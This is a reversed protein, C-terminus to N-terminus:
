FKVTLGFSVTRQTGYKNLTQGNTGLSNGLSVLRPDMGKRKSWLALNNAYIGLSLGSVGEPLFNKNFDYSISADEISIYDSKILFLDSASMNNDRQRDVAPLLADVNTSTWTKYIDKHFNKVDGLGSQLLGAYVGDYMYGGFQYGFNVALNVGKYGFKTGFGGYFKPNANKDLVYLTADQYVSTTKQGIVNGNADKEDVYWLANGNTKDVGAFKRLYFTYASIGEVFRFTGTTFSNPLRTVKNEYFTTNGFVSWTVNQKKILDGSINVEFGENKMDAINRSIFSTGTSPPLPFNFLLDSVKRQFYEADIKVRNFLGIEFGTNMNQSTEWKLDPNGEYVQVISVNGAADPINEYQSQYAKFNRAYGFYSRHNMNTTSPYYLADNGQEGYSFKLKLDNISQNDKLFNENSVMWAAGLGYFNGWRNKPSFVSSGDRRFSANIFYKNAYGYNFRSLFGEVNYNDNYGNLDSYRSGNSVNTSGPIVINNRTGSLMKATYDNSEHGIMVDINHNGFSKKWSILQQNNFTQENSVSTRITGNSSLYDGGINNGYFNYNGNVIDMGFNYTFDFDKYFNWSLGIRGSINDEINRVEDLVAKAYANLGGAYNRALGMGNPNALSGFDYMREGNAAFKFSGDANRAWIPFIPAISRAWSILNSYNSSSSLSNPAGQDTRTYNLSTNLKLKDSIQYDVRTRGSFRKFNSNILYGQDNLNGFSFFANLKDTGMQMNVNYEQRTSVKFLEKSWDDFYLLKANSNLKGTTTNILANGNVNYANYSLGDVGDILDNSANMTATAYDEGNFINTQRLREFYVEYYESPSTIIDYEKVARTNVGFKSDLTVEVKGKKGKKTTIMVVGNAGRSGYLANASADKLFVVSEIDANNLANINGGFPMGDVVYLPNNSSSLSGLGRFRIQPSDGPQGSNTTIQVGGVKGSLSQMVNGTQSNVLEKSDIKEISGAISQKKQTGFAVVVVEDINKTGLSDKKPKQQAMVVQGGVFFLVGATLVKLKVNM